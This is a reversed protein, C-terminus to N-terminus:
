ITPAGRSQTWSNPVPFLSSLPSLDRTTALCAAEDVVRSCGAALPAFGVLRRQVPLMGSSGVGSCNCLVIRRALVIEPSTACSEGSLPYVLGRGHPADVPLCPFRTAAPFQFEVLAFGLEGVRFEDVDTTQHAAEYDPIQLTTLATAYASALDFERWWECVETPGFMFCENRGGHVCKRALAENLSYGPKVVKVPKTGYRHRAQSFVKQKVTEFGNVDEPKIGQDRWIRELFRVALSGLTAPPKRLKLGLEDRAFTSIWEVHRACIEADTVAYAEYHAPDTKLLRDMRGIYPTGDPAIGPDLKGFGHLKGIAELSKRTGPALQMTDVLVVDFERHHKGSNVVALCPEFLTVYTKNLADFEAKIKPFDAMASLDARTWHAAAIVRKPWRTIHGARLGCRIVAALLESFGWREPYCRPDVYGIRPNLFAGESTYAIGRWKRGNPAICGFQYSLVINRKPPPPDDKHLVM